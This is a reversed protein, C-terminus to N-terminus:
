FGHRYEVGFQIPALGRIRGIPYSVGNIVANQGFALPQLDGLDAKENTLNKGSLSFEDNGWRLATRANFDFYAPRRIPMFASTNNSLNSGVYSADGIVMWASGSPLPVTYIAGIHATEKPVNFVPAGVKQPDGPASETIVANVYGVAARLTLGPAVVGSLEIEGGRNRAAGANGTFQAGCSALNIPQQINKWEIDFVAATLVVRGGALSSKGGVEYSWVDDSKFQTTDAFTLGLQALEAACNTPVPNQGGGPRYGKAASTYVMSDSNLDYQLAFKPSVGHESSHVFTTPGGFTGTGIVTSSSTIWYDRAGATVTWRDLIKYYAEGFFAKEDNTNHYTFDYLLDNTSGTAQGLGPADVYTNGNGEGRNYFLGVIGSFNHVPDFSLRAEEYLQNNDDTAPVVIPQPGPTFGFLQQLVPVTGETDDEHLSVNSSYYSTASTASWGDGQYRLTAAPLYWNKYESEAAHFERNITLTNVAYDLPQDLVTPFGNPYYNSQALLKADISLRDTVKWLLSVSGGYINNSGQGNSSCSATSGLSCPYTKTVFGADTSGMGSFRIALTDPVLVVNGVITAASDPHIAHETWGAQVDYKLQNTDLSPANSIFRVAGGLSGHGFLTGQPGRLVEIRAIDAVSPDLSDPLPTDDIYISTTDAGSMGRIAVGRSEELGIGGNGGFSYDLNPVMTAYDTFRQADFDKLTDASIATVSVPVKLLSESRKRATVIIESLPGPGQDGQARESDTGQEQAHAPISSLLVGLGILALKACSRASTAMM